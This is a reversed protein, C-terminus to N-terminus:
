PNVGLLITSNRAPRQRTLTLQFLTKLVVLCFEDLEAKLHPDKVQLRTKELDEMLHQVQDLTATVIAVSARRIEQECIDKYYAKSFFWCKMLNAVALGAARWLPSSGPTSSNSQVVNLRVQLLQLRSRLTKELLFRAKEGMGAAKFDDQHSEIEQEALILNAESATPLDRALRNAITECYGRNLKDRCNIYACIHRTLASVLGVVSGAAILGVGGLLAPAAFTVCAATVAGCGVGVALSTGAGRLIYSDQGTRDGRHESPTHANAPPGTVSPIQGTLANSVASNM